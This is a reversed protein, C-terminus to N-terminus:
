LALPLYHDSIGIVRVHPLRTIPTVTIDRYSWNDKNSVDSYGFSVTLSKDGKQKDGSFLRPYFM